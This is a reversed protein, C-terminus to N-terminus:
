PLSYLLVRISTDSIMNLLREILQIIYQFISGIISANNNEEPKEAIQHSSTEKSYTLPPKGGSAQISAQSRRIKDEFGYPLPASYLNSGEFWAEGGIAWFLSLMNALITLIMSSILSKIFTRKVEKIESPRM